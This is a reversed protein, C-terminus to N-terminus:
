GGGTGSYSSKRWLLPTPDIASM